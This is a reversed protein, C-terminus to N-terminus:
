YCDKHYGYHTAGCICKGVAAAGLSALDVVAGLHPSVSSALVVGGCHGVGAGLVLNHVLVVGFLTGFTTQVFGGFWIRLMTRFGVLTMLHAIHGVIGMMRGMMRGMMGSRNVFWCRAGWGWGHNYTGTRHGVRSWSRAGWRRVLFRLMVVLRMVMMMVSRHRKVKLIYVYTQVKLNECMLLSVVCEM